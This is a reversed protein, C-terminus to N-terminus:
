LSPNVVMGKYYIWYVFAIVALSHFVSFLVFVIRFLSVLLWYFLLWKTSTISLTCAYLRIGKPTQFGIYYKLHFLDCIFIVSFKLSVIDTPKNQNYEKGKSEVVKELTEQDWDEM